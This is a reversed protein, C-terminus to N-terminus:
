NVTHSPSSLSQIHAALHAMMGDYYPNYTLRRIIGKKLNERSIEGLFDEQRNKCLRYKEGDSFYHGCSAYDGQAGYHPDDPPIVIATHASSLIQRDPLRSSIREVQAPLTSTGTGYLLMRKSPHGAQRFFALTASTLVTADDESAAIFLPLPITQSELLRQIERTLLYVQDGANFPFSEYKVIDADEQRDMWAGAPYAWSYLKHWNALFGFPSVAVAPSFLYLGAVRLDRLSQYLSLAGGTSFGALYVEDTERSLVDVGFQVARAWEQWTVELLDGARTGHGPLLIAKVGFGQAQFFRGLARMSYPSDTLGHALLIGRRPTKTTEPPTLAFPANADVIRDRNEATLDTRAHLIMQRTQAIYEDFSLGEFAFRSNKGSPKHRGSLPMELEEENCGFCCPYPSPSEQDLLVVFRAGPVRYDRM